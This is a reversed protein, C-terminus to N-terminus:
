QHNTPFITPVPEIPIIYIPVISRKERSVGLFCLSVGLNLSGRGQCGLKVVPLIDLRLLAVGHGM